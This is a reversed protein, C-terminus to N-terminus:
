SFGCSELFAKSDYESVKKYLIDNLEELFVRLGDNIISNPPRNNARWIASAIDELSLTERTMDM